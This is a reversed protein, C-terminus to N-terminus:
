VPSWNETSILSMGVEAILVIAPGLQIGGVDQV